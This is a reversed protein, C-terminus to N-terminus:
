PPYWFVFTVFAVFLPLYCRMLLSQLDVGCSCSLLGLYGHERIVVKFVLSHVVYFLYTKLVM